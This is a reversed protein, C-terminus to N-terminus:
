TTRMRELVSALTKLDSPSPDGRRGIDRQTLGNIHSLPPTDVDVVSDDDKEEVPVFSSTLLITNGSHLPAKVEIVGSIEIYSFSTASSQSEGLRTMYVITGPSLESSSPSGTTATHFWKVPNSGALMSSNMNLTLERGAHGLLFNPFDALDAYSTPVTLNGAASPVFGVAHSYGLLRSAAANAVAVGMSDAMVHVRLNKFRYFEYLSAISRVRSGSAFSAINLNITNIEFGVTTTRQVATVDRFPVRVTRTM